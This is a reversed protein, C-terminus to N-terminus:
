STAQSGDNPPLDTPFLRGDLKSVVYALREEDVADHDSLWDAIFAMATPSGRDVAIVCAENMAALAGRLAGTAEANSTV